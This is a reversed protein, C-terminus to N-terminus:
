PMDIDTRYCLIIIAEGKWHEQGQREQLRGLRHDGDRLIYKSANVHVIRGIDIERDALSGLITKRLPSGLFDSDRAKRFTLPSRSCFIVKASILELIYRRTNVHRVVNTFETEYKELGIPGSLDHFARCQGFAALM